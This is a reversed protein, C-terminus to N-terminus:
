CFRIAWVGKGTEGPFDRGSGFLLFFALVSTPLEVGFDYTLYSM